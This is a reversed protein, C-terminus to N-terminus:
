ARAELFLSANLLAWLLMMHNAQGSEHERFIEEAAGARLWGNKVLPGESLLQRTPGGVKPDKFWQHIPANFGVKRPNLRLSEPLLGKLGRRLLAKSLGRDYKVAGPLSLCLRFLRPSLFPSVGRLGLNQNALQLGWLTPPTTEHSIEQWLRNSLFNPYPRPMPPTERSHAAFWDPNFFHRNAQYLVQDVRIEGSQFDINRDWFTKLTEPNKRFVPHDHLRSWAEVEAALRDLDGAKKLDAFFYFFHGFEGALSEDGGLGNFMESFGSLQQGMLYYALWTVTVVPSRSLGIYKRTEAVLDPKELRLHTWRWDRGRVLEAVGDTEDYEEAGAGQYGVSFVDLGGLEGAALAAVTSSDLGSSVTFAPRRAARARLRVSPRLIEMLRGSAEEPGLGFLEPDHDLKLWSQSSLGRESIDVYAGAPVQYVGQHFTRAPDRFLYRYHTATYDFLTAEDPRIEDLLDLLGAYTFSWAFGGPRPAYYLPTPGFDRMLRWSKQGANYAVLALDAERENLLEPRAALLALERDQDRGPALDYLRGRFFILDASPAERFLALGRYHEM